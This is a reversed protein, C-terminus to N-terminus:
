SRGGRGKGQEQSNEAQDELELALDECDLDHDANLVDQTTESFGRLAEPSLGKLKAALDESDIEDLNIEEGLAKSINVEAEIRDAINNEPDDSVAEIDSMQRESIETIGRKRLDHLVCCAVIDEKSDELDTRIVKQMGYFASRTLIEDFSLKNLDEIQKLEDYGECFERFNNKEFEVCDSAHICKADASNIIWDYDEGFDMSTNRNLSDFLYDVAYKGLNQEKIKKFKEALKIM